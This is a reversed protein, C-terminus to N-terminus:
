RFMGPLFSHWRPARVSGSDGGRTVASKPRAPAPSRKDTSRVVDPADEGAVAEPCSGGDGGPGLQRLDRAGSPASASVLLLALALRLLMTTMGVALTAAFLRRIM